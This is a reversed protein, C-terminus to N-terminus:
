SQKENSFERLGLAPDLRPGPWLGGVQGSITQHVQLRGGVLQRHIRALRIRELLASHLDRNREPRLPVYRKPIKVADDNWKGCETLCAEVYLVSRATPLRSVTIQISLM